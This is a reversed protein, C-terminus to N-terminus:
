KLHRSNKSEWLIQEGSQIVGKCAQCMGEFKATIQRAAM